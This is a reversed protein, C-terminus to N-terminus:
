HWRPHKILLQRLSNVKESALLNVLQLDSRRKKAFAEGYIIRLRKVTTEGRKRDIQGSADRHRGDLGTHKAM